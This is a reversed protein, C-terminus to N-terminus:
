LAIIYPSGGVHNGTKPTLLSVELQPKAVANNPNITLCLKVLCLGLKPVLRSIPGWGLQHEEIVNGHSKSGDFETYGKKWQFFPYRIIDFGNQGLSGTVTILQGNCPVKIEVAKDNRYDQLHLQGNLLNLFYSGNASQLGFFKIKARPLDAYSNESGDANFETIISDDDLVAVWFFKQQM